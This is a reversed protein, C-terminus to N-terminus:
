GEHHDEPRREITGCWTPTPVTFTWLFVARGSNPQPHDSMQGTYVCMMYIYKFVYKYELVHRPVYMCVHIYTCGDRIDCYKLVCIGSLLVVIM